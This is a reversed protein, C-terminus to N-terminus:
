DSETKPTFSIIGTQPDFESQCTLCKLIKNSLVKGKTFPRKANVMAQTSDGSCAPCVAGSLMTQEKLVAPSIVNEQGELLKRVLEQDMEKFSSPM